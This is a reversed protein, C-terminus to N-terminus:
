ESITDRGRIGDTTLIHFSTNAQDYGFEIFYGGSGFPTDRTWLGHGSQHQVRADALEATRVGIQGVHGDYFLVIPSSQWGHNFYYPECDEYSGGEFNPNCETRRNQLWHHEAMHTKLAPYRAQGIAPTRLGAAMLWQDNFYKGTDENFGFVEPSMMAAPSLCYSSWVHADACPLLVGCPVCEYPMEFAKEACTFVQTDKPAYFEPAYWRGSLYQNFAQINPFRFRGFGYVASTESGYYHIPNGAWNHHAPHSGDLIYVYLYQGQGSSNPGWGAIINPHGVGHEARYDTFAEASSSGYYGINDAVTTLQRDNWDAAYAAHAAAMNRLNVQSVTQRASDRAKGVAPLLIGILLAIISVVVLLEIITFALPPRNRYM